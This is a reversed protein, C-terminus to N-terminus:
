DEKQKLVRLTGFLCGGSVVMLAIWMWLNMTDGTDPITPTTPQVPSQVPPQEPPLVPTEPPTVDTPTTIETKVENTTYSNRGEVVTAKNTIATGVAADAKAKFAVTVTENAKVNLTWTVTGDAYVGGQDASGDVYKVHESLTDTITITAEDISKNTYSISYVLIDGNHIKQGDISITPVGALFVNKQVEDETTYNTVGNTTYSNKGEQVKATNVIQEAGDDKVTVKFSVTKTAKKDVELTWTIEGNNHVGSHDASGDVYVTHNPITDTITVTAKEDASNTYSITYLLVDGAYVKQGDINVTTKDAFFVKKEVKDEVTYNTVVNTTYQNKGDDVNAKNTINVAAVKNVTVSFGVKVTSWPKVDSLNWTITGASYVGGNDASADVYTTNEPIKDTITIDVEDSSANTYSVVYLLEDGAYVKKGDVSVTPDSSLFVEKKTVDDVTHNVVENTAYTNTGDRVVATNAVIANTEEVKVDFSVTVSEGAAVNLVWNLHSGVFSGNHSATGDVYSTHAPITDVIDVAVNKGHYNTYTIFYTLIDGASVKKGDIQTTTNAKHYVEKKTVSDETANVFSAEVRANEAEHTTIGTTLDLVTLKLQGTGHDRVQVRYNHQAADYIIGDVPNSADEVVTFFYTDATDFSRAGFAFANGVNTKVDVCTATSLDFTHDTQYLKFTFDGDKLNGGQLTKKGSFEVSASAAKYSNEFVINANQINASAVLVSNQDEVRVVVTIDNAAEAGTYTVGPVKDQDAPAIEKVTYTYVGAKTYSIPAFTFTSDAKNSVKELLVNGEYLGFTFEGAAAARGKLIKRGGIAYTTAKVDYKNQFTVTKTTSDEFYYTAELKGSESNNVVEVVLDYITEDYTYGPKHDNIEVVDYEYKGAAEFTLAKNFTVKGDAANTGSLVEEKTGNKYVKFTFANDSLTKGDLKKLVATNLNVTANDPDYTNVFSVTGNNGSVSASEGNATTGDVAVITM